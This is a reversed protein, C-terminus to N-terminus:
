IQYTKPMIKEVIGKYRKKESQNRISTSSLAEYTKLTINM